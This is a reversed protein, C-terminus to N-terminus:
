EPTYKKCFGELRVCRGSKNDLEAFAGCVDCEGSAGIHKRPYYTLFREIIVDKDVGLVSNHAGTMGVDTIYGTGDIIEADATRVHTHTGFVASVKGALFFGMARKESTAEAHFDVIVIKSAINKLIEEACKFPNDVPQMFATGILNVVAVGFSGFDLECVGKGPLCDGFNAPRLLTDRREYEEAISNKRFSHNGTTIVDAGADYIAQASRADIGNGDACNEGNVIALDANYERRISPLTAALAERGASGVVDGIFVVRM